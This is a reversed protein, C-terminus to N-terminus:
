NYIITITTLATSLPSFEAKGGIPPCMQKHAIRPLNQAYSTLFNLPSTQVHRRRLNHVAISM